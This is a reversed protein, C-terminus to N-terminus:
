PTRRGPRAERPSRESSRRAAPASAGTRAISRPPRKPARPGARLAAALARAVWQAAHAEDGRIAEPLVVYESMARGPMPEFPLVGRDAPASERRSPETRVFLAAGFVGLFMRGGAFATPQGFLTRREVQPDVPILREFLAVTSPEPRPFKM